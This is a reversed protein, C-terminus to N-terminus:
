HPPNQADEHSMMQDMMGVMMDMRAQIMERCKMVDASMMRGGEKDPMSKGAMGPHEAGSMNGASEGMMTCGMHQMSALQERMAQRHQTLLRAREAPDKTQGLQDMLEQMSRMRTQMDTGATDAPAAKKTPTAAKGAAPQDPHHDAHDEPRVQAVAVSMAGVVVAALYFAKM